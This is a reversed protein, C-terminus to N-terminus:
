LIEPPPPGFTENYDDFSAGTAVAALGGVRAAIALILDPPVVAWPWFRFRPRPAPPNSPKYCPKATEAERALKASEAASARDAADLAGKIENQKRVFDKRSQSLDMHDYEWNGTPDTSNTVRNNVYRYINSDGGAFGIPDESMFRGIAADYYRARNYQIETEADFERGTYKYRTNVAPNSESIVNGYSDYNIHNVVQGSNNVLDRVTGLHDTLMWQVDGNASEQALIQDVSPGHLYRMSEASPAPGSVDPDTLEAFVDSGDYVFFTVTGDVADTPTKDVKSAIRRNMADYTYEVVRSPAGGSNPRDIVRILRNRQDWSFERMAGGVIHTRAILNGEADYAYRYTGDSTLRNNDNTGAVGDGVVYGTGHRHSSIRNGTADYSYNENLSATDAHNAATLQDRQDYSYDTAGDIDTIRTIRSAVDYSFAYSNLLANVPNRHSINTLRNLTDYAFSTAAVSQLGGVDSFRSLSAFQGLANYTLDVRKEAVSITSGVAISQTLKTLRDLADYSYANTGGVLGNITDTTSLVNGLADYTRDLITSPVGNGGGTQERTPRGLADYTVRYDSANDQMRVLRSAADYSYIVSNTNGNQTDFWHEQTLRGLDDYEFRTSRGLRDVQAVVENESNYSYTKVGGLPDKESVRRNRADYSFQTVNGSADTLSVLNNDDDYKYRTAFGAADIRTTIRNRADYLMRTTNGLPDTIRILNGVQDYSYKTVNNGPDKASSLRNMADYTRSTTQGLPDTVTLLNGMADYTFRTMPSPLPGNGDPDPQTIRTLRNVSDYDYLTRHGNEDVIASLNGAADYENTGVTELATGKASKRSTLNGRSDYDFDTIYGLADTAIDIQGSALYTFSSIVDDGGGETGIIKTIGLVNGRGPDINFLTRRGQQDTVSTPQNFNSDYTYTTSSLTGGALPAVSKDLRTLRISYDLPAGFAGLRILTVTGTKSFSVIGESVFKGPTTEVRSWNIALYPDSSNAAPDFIVWNSSEAQLLLTDGAAVDIRRLVDEKTSTTKGGFTMDVPLKPPNDLHHLQLSLELSSYFVRAFGLYTGSRTAVFPKGSSVGSPSVGPISASANFYQHPQYSADFSDQVNAQLMYHQGAVLEFRFPFRDLGPPLPYTAGPELRPLTSVDSFSFEYDTPSTLPRSKGELYATYRGSRPLIIVPDDGSFWSPNFEKITDGSPGVIRVVLQSGDSSFSYSSRFMIRSGANSQFTAIQEGELAKGRYLIDLGETAVSADNALSILWDYAIPTETDQNRSTVILLYKGPEPIAVFNSTTSAASDYVLRGSPSVIELRTAASSQTLQLRQGAVLNLQFLNAVSGNALQRSIPEGLSVHPVEAVNLLQFEYNTRSGGYKRIQLHYEGTVQVNFPRLDGGRLTTSIPGSPGVFQWELNSGDGFTSMRWDLYITSGVVGHFTYTDEHNREIFAKVTQGFSIPKSNKSRGKLQFSTEQPLVNNPILATLVYEKPHNLGGAGAPLTTLNSTAQLDFVRGEDLISLSNYSYALPDFLVTDGPTALFRYYKQGPARAALTGPIDDGLTISPMQSLDVSRFSFAASADDLIDFILYYDGTYPLTYIGDDSRDRSYTAAGSLFLMTFSSGTTDVALRQGAIGSLRSISAKRGNQRTLTEQIVSGFQASTASALDEIRFQYSGSLGAYLRKVVMQYNGSSTLQFIANDGLLQNQYKIPPLIRDQPDRLEFKLQDRQGLNDLYIFAAQLGTFSFRKEENEQLTGTHTTGFGSVSVPVPDILETSFELIKQTSAGPDTAHVLYYEGDGLVVFAYESTGPYRILTVEENNPGTVLWTGEPTISSDKLSFHQNRAAQFRYVVDEGGDYGRSVRTGLALETAYSKSRIAAKYSGKYKSVTVQYTGDEPLRETSLKQGTPTFIEITATGLITDIRLLENAKATFSYRDTEGLRQLEGILLGIISPEDGLRVSLSDQSGILNGRSDFTNYTAAGSASTIIIPLNDNDRVKGPLSGVGDSASVIQGLNDLKSRVLNGNIDAVASEPLPIRGAMPNALPTAIPDAATQEPPFLGQIDLPSYQRTSGDKRVVDTLRGHFGYNSREVNGLQDTEGTMRHQSDYRWQRSSGDPDTVRILNGRSDLNLRTTRSAPDIIEILGTSYTLTTELGVPDIFKTLRGTSDYEYRSVNANRDTLSALKRNSGYQEITKDPTVRQFTGNPLKSLVAFEGPPLDYQGNANKRYLDESGNGNIVLVSGDSNEVLELLGSIGWGAGLSSRRTNVSAVQGTTENLTGIFGRAGAYGLMGSRLTYDYVGTPRNRLDVQLAADITGAELPLRWINKNGTLGYDGGTFGPVETTIGNRSVALEAILRVASPVSYLNPNLDDFTFHVIPRPDARLSDYTLTLGRANGQSQYTVLDHTEILAGSHLECSSTADVCADEQKPAGPRQCSSKTDGCGGDGGPEKNRPDPDNKPGTPPPPDFFHWSSNRIGGSITDIVNGDASVQGIGVKDFEGTVPNISWLDLITAPAYGGRNPLSLPTPTTFVMEGPQITVVLDPILGDPLAAPTLAVPVDTISLVGTFPTGQQNMLTSAAVEVKAGPLASSTVTTNRTPDITKGNAVDIEPLYIPRDIVNNVNPYVEHELIFALKEAIFPYVKPGNVLEGRVKITDSVVTGAGLDLTFSGDALTLGQVSGIQIPMSALPQGNVQLIRGSVRTTTLPDAVVNLSVSRTAELVGDSAIVDFQYTGLQSPTPRFTLVGSSSIAGTPLSSSGDQTTVSYAIADGDPDQAILPITVFGGPMVTIPGIAALTPARNPSALVQPKLVFPIRSPNNFEVVVAESWTGHSLGGRGIAPKLNIYPAGEATTGSSNQLTVGNPLSPFVVAVDRSVSVGDNRLRVEANYKGTSTDFRVNGVHLHFDALATLSALNASPGANVPQSNVLLKADISGDVDVENTLPQITIQSQRDNDSSLLQFKLLGTDITALDSLNIELNSGDWRVRGPVTEAVTGALTFLATGNTGRDLLTTSQQKPDVLYVALLDEIAASPDTTDFQTDIRVRYIRSGSTQGLTVFVSTEKVFGGDKESLSRAGSGNSNIFNIVNLVDLSSVGQDGDVDLFSKGPDRTDPLLGAGNANIYNIVALADLASVSGDNDVDISDVPNRWDVNFLRRDELSEVM